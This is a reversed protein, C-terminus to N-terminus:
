RSCAPMTCEALFSPASGTSNYTVCTPTGTPASSRLVSAFGPLALQGASVVPGAGVTVFITRALSLSGKSTGEVAVDSTMICVTTTSGPPVTPQCLWAEGVKTATL